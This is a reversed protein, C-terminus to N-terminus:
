FMVSQLILACATSTFTAVLTPLMFSHNLVWKGIKCTGSLDYNMTAILIGATPFFATANVAPLVGILQGVPMGIAVGLPMLTRVTAAQSNIVSAGLFLFIAFLWPYERMIVGLNAVFSAKHAAFFTDGLWAIGFLAIAATVGAQLLRSDRAVKINPRCILLILCGVSLMVIQLFTAMGIAKKAGLPTRLEPWFGSAVVYCVGFIFLAASLKAGKPLASKEKVQPVKVLGQRVREQYEEDVKLDKGYRLMVFSTVVVAILTAPITVMMIQGLTISPDKTVLLGLMAATCASVPSAVLSQQCACMATTMSREPRIGVSHSVEYIVPMISNCIHATGGLFSFIWTVLPAVFVIRNPNARIIREALGVMYDIGGAADMMAGATVVALIILIVDIPPKSPTVGFFLALVLVGLGGWVGLGIGKYKSGFILATLVVLSQLLIDM